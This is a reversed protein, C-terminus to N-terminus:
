SLPKWHPPEFDPATVAPTPINNGKIGRAQTSFTNLVTCITKLNAPYQFLLCSTASMLTKYTFAIENYQM